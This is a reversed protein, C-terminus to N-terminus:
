FGIEDPYEGVYSLSKFFLALRTLLILFISEIPRVELLPISSNGVGDSGTATLGLFGYIQM